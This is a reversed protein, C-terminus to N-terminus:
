SEYPKVWLETQKQGAKLLAQALQSVTVQAITSDALVWATTTDSSLGSANFMTIARAMRDQATEDGDFVMGDVEVTISAVAESRETKKQALAQEALEKESPNKINVWIGNQLYPTFGDLFDPPTFTSNAEGFYAPSGKIGTQWEDLEAEKTELYKGTDPDFKYLNM